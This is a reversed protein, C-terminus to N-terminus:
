DRTLIKTVYDATLAAAAQHNKLWQAHADPGVANTVALLPTLSAVSDSIYSAIGYLEVNEILNEAEQDPSLRTDLSISAACLCTKRKLGEVWTPNLPIPLPNMTNKIKYAKGMREGICSWRAEEASVLEVGSFRGFTGCTGIYIVHKGTLTQALQKANAASELAGIGFTTFTVPIKTNQFRTHLLRYEFDVAAVVAIQTELHGIADNPM